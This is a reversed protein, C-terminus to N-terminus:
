PGIRRARLYGVRVCVGVTYDLKGSVLRSRRFRGQLLIESEDNPRWVKHFTGRRTIRVTPYVLPHVEVEPPFYSCIVALSASFRQLFRGNRSVRFTFSELREGENDYFSGRYKGPRPRAARQVAPAGDDRAPAVWAARARSTPDTASAPPAVALLGIALLTVLASSLVRWPRSNM